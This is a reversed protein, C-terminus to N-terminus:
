SHPKKPQKDSKMTKVFDVEAKLSKLLYHKEARDVPWAKSQHYGLRCGHPSYFPYGQKLGLLLTAVAEPFHDYGVGQLPKLGQTDPM